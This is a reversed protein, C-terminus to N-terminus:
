DETDSAGSGLVRRISPLSFGKRRLYAVLRDGTASRPAKRVAARIVDELSAEDSFAEDIVPRIVERSIGKEQLRLEIYRPAEPSRRLRSEVFARAYREEDVVHEERLRSVVTEAEERTWGKRSLKTSLERPAHDRMALLDLAKQRCAHLRSAAFCQETQEETLIDGDHLHLTMAVSTPVFFPSGERPVVM